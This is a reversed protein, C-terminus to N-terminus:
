LLNLNAMRYYMAASSVNFKKALEKSTAESGLDLFKIKKIEKMLLTEPMLIVAAFANAEREQRLTKENDPGSGKAQSRFSVRFYKDVFLKDEDKHLEYHAWEHAITFRRRVLSETQNYGITGINNEIVLIGSVGDGLLSPKINLGRRKVMEEIPIPLSDISLEDLIAQAKNAIQKFTM